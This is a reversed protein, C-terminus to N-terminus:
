HPMNQQLQQMKSLKPTLRQASAVVNDVWKSSTNVHNLSRTLARSPDSTAYLENYFMGTTENRRAAWAEPSLAGPKRQAVYKDMEGLIQNLKFQFQEADTKAVLQAPSPVAMLFQRAAVYAKNDMSGSKFMGDLGSIAQQQTMRGSFFKAQVSQFQDQANHESVTRAHEQLSFQHNQAAWGFEIQSRAANADSQKKADVTNQLSMLQGADQASIGGNNPGKAILSRITDPTMRLSGELVSPLMNGLNTASKREADRLRQEEFQSHMTSYATLLTGRETPNWTSTKGDGQMSQLAKQVVSEDKGQMAADLVSHLIFTKAKDMDIGLAASKHVADEVATLSGTSMEGMAVTTISTMAKDQMQAKITDAATQLTSTRLNNISRYLTANAHPDGYDIPQGHEDVMMSHVLTDFHANADQLTVPKEGKTPDADAGQAIFAAMSQTIAPANTTIAQHVRGDAIVMRYALSKDYVDKNINGTASDKAAILANNDEAKAFQKQSIDVLTSELQQGMGLVKKLEESQLDVRSATRMSGQLEVSPLRPTGITPLTQSKYKTPSDDATTRGVATALDLADM